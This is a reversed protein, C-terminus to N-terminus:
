FKEVKYEDIKVYSSQARDGSFLGIGVCLEEGEFGELLYFEEGNVFATLTQNKKVVKLEPSFIPLSSYAGIVGNNFEKRLAVMYSGDGSIRLNFTKASPDISERILIGCQSNRNPCFFDGVRLTVVFDSHINEYLYTVKDANFWVNEGNSAIVTKGDIEGVIGNCDGINAFKM